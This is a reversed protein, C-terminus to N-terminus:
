SLGTEITIKATSDTEPTLKPRVATGTPHFHSNEIKEGNKKCSWFHKDVASFIKASGKECEKIKSRIALM